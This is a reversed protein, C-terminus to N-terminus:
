QMAAKTAEIAAKTAEQEDDFPGVPEGDYDQWYWGLQDEGLYYIGDPKHFSSYIDNADEETVQFIAINSLANDSNM